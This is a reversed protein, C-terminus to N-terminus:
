RQRAQKTEERLPPLFSLLKNSGRALLNRGSLLVGADPGGCVDLKPRNLRESGV